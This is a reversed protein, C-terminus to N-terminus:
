PARPRVRASRPSNALLWRTFSEQRSAPRARFDLRLGAARWGINVPVSVAYDSLVPIDQRSGAPFMERLHQVTYPTQIDLQVVVNTTAADDFAIEFKVPGGPFLFRWDPQGPHIRMDFTRAMERLVLGRQFKSLAQPGLTLGLHDLKLNRSGVRRLAEGLGLVAPRQRQPRRLLVNLVDELPSWVRGPQTIALRLSSGDGIRRM